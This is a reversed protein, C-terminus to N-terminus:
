TGGGEDGGRCPAAGAVLCLRVTRTRGEAFGQMRRLKNCQVPRSCSMAPKSLSQRCFMCRLMQTRRRCGSGQASTCPRQWLRHRPTSTQLNVHLKSAQIMFHTTINAQRPSACAAYVGRLMEHRGCLKGTQEVYGIARAWTAQVKAHGNVLIEGEIFGQTKRGAIVQTAPM